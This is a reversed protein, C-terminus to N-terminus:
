GNRDETMEKVLLKVDKEIESLLRAKAITEINDQLRFMEDYEVMENEKLTFVDWVSQMEIDTGDATEITDRSANEAYDHLHSYRAFLKNIEDVFEKVAESKIENEVKKSVEVQIEYPFKNAGEYGVRYTKAAGRMAQLEGNLREIEAKQRYILDAVAPILGELCGYGNFVCPRCNDDDTDSIHCELVEIIQEDTM